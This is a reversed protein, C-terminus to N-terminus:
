KEKLSERPLKGEADVKGALRAMFGAPQRCEIFIFSRSRKGKNRLKTYVAAITDLRTASFKMDVKGNKDYAQVKKTNGEKYIFADQNYKKAQKQLVSKLIDGGFEDGIVFISDEKVHIEDEEEKNEIWAGDVWFYGYGANQLVAALIRNNALNQERTKDGRFASIIGVPRPGTLHQNVPGLSSEKLFEAYTITKM